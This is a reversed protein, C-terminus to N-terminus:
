LGEFNELTDTFFSPNGKLTRVHSFWTAADWIEFIEGFGFLVVVGNASPLLQASRVPEPITFTFRTEEANITVKWTTVLLRAVDIWSESADSSTPSGRHQVARTFREQRVIHNSFPELQIGGASGPSAACEVPTPPSVNLWPVATGVERRFRVRNQTDVKAVALRRTADEIQHDGRVM